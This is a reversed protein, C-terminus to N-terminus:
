RASDDLYRLIDRLAKRRIRAGRLGCTRSIPRANAVRQLPGRSHAFGAKSAAISSTVDAVFVFREVDPQSIRNSLSLNGLHAYQKSGM